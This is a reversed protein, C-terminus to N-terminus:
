RAGNDYVNLSASYPLSAAVAGGSAACRVISVMPVCTPELLRAATIMSGMWPSPPKMTGASPKRGASSSQHRLFLTTNMAASTCVPNARVPARHPRDRLPAQPTLHSACPLDNCYPTTQTTTTSHMYTEHLM